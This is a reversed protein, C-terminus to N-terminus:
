FQFLVDDTWCSKMARLIDRDVTGVSKGQHIALGFEGLSLLDFLCATLMHKAKDEDDVPVVYIELTRFTEDFDLM